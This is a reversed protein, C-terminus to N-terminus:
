FCRDAPVILIYNTNRGNEGTNRLIGKYVLDQIDRLVNHHQTDFGLGNMLGILRGQQERIRALLSIINSDSWCFHPWQEYQWIWVPHTM